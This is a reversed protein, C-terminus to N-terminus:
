KMVTKLRVDANFELLGHAIEVEKLDFNRIVGDIKPMEIRNAENLSNLTVEEEMGASNSYKLGELMPSGKRVLILEGHADGIITQLVDEGMRNKQYGGLALAWFELDTGNDAFAIVDEHVFGAVFMDRRGKQDDDDFSDYFYGSGSIAGSKPIYQYEFRLSPIVNTSDKVWVKPCKNEMTNLYGDKYEFKISPNNSLSPFLGEATIIDGDVSLEVERTKWNGRITRGQTGDGFIDVSVPVWTGAYKDASPQQYKKLDSLYYSKKMLDLAGKTSITDTIFESHYGNGAYVIFTYSTGAKLSNGLIGSLGSTNLQKLVQGGVSGYLKLTEKITEEYTEYYSTPYYSIQAHTIDKGRVWYQFSNESTYNSPALMDDTHLGMYIEVKRDEGPKIYGFQISTYERYASDGEGFTCAVVTYINTKADAEEPAVETKIEKQDAAISISKGSKVVDSLKNAMEIENVVGKYVKYKLTKVDKAVTFTAETKGNSDCEGVKAEIGYDEAKGGPLVIRFKGSSNSFYYYGGMGFLVGNKPFTIVGDKSLKGYLLNSAAGFVEEVDSAIYIDGLSSDSFGCFQDPFYVRSSDSADIYIFTNENVYPAYTSELTAKNAEYAEDGEVLRALYAASYVNELRFFNKKDRREYINVSTELYRGSWSFMDSFFADRYIAEGNMKKWEYMQVSFSVSSSGYGYVPVYEPDSISMSCRYTEGTAIGNFEVKITAERQGENFQLKGFKFKGTEYVPEEVTVTDGPNQSKVIRYVSYDYPIEISKSVDSRRVKFELETPDVGKELTHAKANAQEEVFYVGMCNEHEPAGAEYKEAVCSGLLLTLAAALFSKIHIAKM